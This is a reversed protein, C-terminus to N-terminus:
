LNSRTAQLPLWSETQYILHTTNKLQAIKKVLSGSLKILPTNDKSSSQTMKSVKTIPLMMINKGLGQTGVASTGAQHDDRHDDRLNDRFVMGSTM